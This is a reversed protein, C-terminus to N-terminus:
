EGIIIYYEGIIIDCYKARMGDPLQEDSLCIFAEEWTLYNLQDTIVHRSFVNRGQM